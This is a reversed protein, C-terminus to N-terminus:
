GRPRAVIAFRSCLMPLRRALSFRVPSITVRPDGTLALVQFHFHKELIGRLVRPRYYFLHHDTDYHHGRNRGKLGLRGQATKLQASLSDLNPVGFYVVGDPKLLRHIQRLYEAPDKPHELVQDLFVCDYSSSSLQLDMFNGSHVPVGIRRSVESTVGPDVDFGEVTFGYELAMELELGGGCGIALFHGGQKFRTLLHFAAKKQQFKEEPERGARQDQNFYSAYYRDLHAQTYQPNMFLLGCERCHDINIGRPTRDHRRLDTSRCCPCAQLAPDFSADSTAPGQM